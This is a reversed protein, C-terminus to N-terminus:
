LANSFASSPLKFGNACISALSTSRASSKYISAAVYTYKCHKPLKEIRNWFEADVSKDVIPREEIKIKQGLLNGVIIKTGNTLSEKKYGGELVYHQSYRKFLDFIVDYSRSTLQLGPCATCGADTYYSDFGASLLVVDPAFNEVAPKVLKNLAEIYLADYTRPPLPINLVNKHQNEVNGTM